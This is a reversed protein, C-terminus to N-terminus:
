FYTATAEGGAHRARPANSNVLTGLAVLVMLGFMVMLGIFLPSQGEKIESAAGLDTGSAPGTVDLIAVDEQAQSGDQGGGNPLSYDDAGTWTEGNGLDVKVLLSNDRLMFGSVELMRGLLGTFGAAQLNGATELPSDAYIVGSVLHPSLGVDTTSEAIQGNVIPKVQVHQVQDPRSGSMEAVLGGLVQATGDFSSYAAPNLQLRFQFDVASRGARKNQANDLQFRDRSEPIQVPKITPIDVPPMAGAPPKDQPKEPQKTDSPQTPQSVQVPATPPPVDAMPQAAPAETLWECDPEFFDRPQHCGSVAGERTYSCDLNTCYFLSNIWFGKKAACVGRRPNDRCTSVCMQDDYIYVYDYRGETIILNFHSPPRPACNQLQCTEPCSSEKHATGCYRKGKGNCLHPTGDRRLALEYEAQYNSEMMTATAQAM